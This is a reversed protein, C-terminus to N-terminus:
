KNSVAQAVAEEKLKNFEEETSSSFIISSNNEDGLFILENDKIEVKIKEETEENANLIITDGKIEYRAEIIEDGIVFVAKNNDFSYGLGYEKHIWYGRVDVTEKAKTEEESGTTENTKEIYVTETEKNTEPKNSGCGTILCITSILSLILLRKKFM